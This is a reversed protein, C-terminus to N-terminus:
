RGVSTVQHHLSAKVVRCALEDVALDSWEPALQRLADIDDSSPKVQEMVAMLVRLAIETVDIGYTM